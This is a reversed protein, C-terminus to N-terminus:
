HGETNDKRESSLPEQREAQQAKIASVWKVRGFGPRIWREVGRVRSVSGKKQREQERAQTKREEEDQFSLFHPILILQSLPLFVKGAKM